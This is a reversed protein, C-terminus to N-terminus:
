VHFEVGDRHLTDFNVSTGALLELNCDEMNDM